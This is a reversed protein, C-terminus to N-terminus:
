KEGKTNKESNSRSRTEKIVSLLFLKTLGKPLSDLKYKLIPKGNVKLMNKNVNETLHKMRKGRGATLIVAQM